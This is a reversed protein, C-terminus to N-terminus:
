RVLQLKPSKLATAALSTARDRQFSTVTVLDDMRRSVRESMMLLFRSRQRLHRSLERLRHSEQRLTLTRDHRIPSPM